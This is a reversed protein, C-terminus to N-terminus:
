PNNRLSNGHRENRDRSRGLANKEQKGCGKGHIRM